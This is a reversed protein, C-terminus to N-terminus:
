YGSCASLGRSWALDLRLPALEASATDEAEEATRHPAPAPRLPPSHLSTAGDDDDLAVPQSRHLTAADDPAPDSTGTTM